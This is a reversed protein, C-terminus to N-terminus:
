NLLLTMRASLQSRDRFFGTPFNFNGGLAAYKLDFLLNDSYRFTLGIPLAYTGDLGVIITMSPELRGHLYDTQLHSQIFSEYPYLDVFDTPVTHLKSITAVTLGSANAGIRTGTGTAKQQGGFRYDKSTFTESLNWQGVYATVWIFSTYPNLPRFFFNRDFGLEFRLFDAHPITGGEPGPTVKQGLGALLKKLGPARLEAEFPINENPIFAPENLFYEAETRVIGNLKESFFSTSVGIVDELGHHLVTILQTPGKAGPHVIPARSLDLPLFVPVPATAFTRYYWVSTTYDRAVVGGFRIGFRSNSMSRSPLQDYLGLQIGGLATNVIPGAISPPILGAILAQPDDQPPSYPSALPLPVQSVTTDISGPVLYADAFASSIPGWHDFLSYTGRLTFLPIRAEDVDQFIGPVGLTQNFPNNADLLAITDSEGWSIAQRGIRLFLPGKTVNFYMENFRFPVQGYSGLVPDPQYEYQKRPDILTDTRTVAATETHGFSLRGKIRHIARVYQGTGYDYIGDYFGWLALRFSLDDLHFPQYRTLRADFEPNFFYRNSILQFPARAPRTQPESNEAAVAFESYARGRIEFDRNVDLYFAQARGCVGVVCAVGIAWAARRGRAGRRHFTAGRCVVHGM